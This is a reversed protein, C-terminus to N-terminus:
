QIRCRLRLEIEDLWVQGVLACQPVSYKELHHNWRLKFPTESRM